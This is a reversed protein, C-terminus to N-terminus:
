LDLAKVREAEPVSILNEIEQIYARSQGVADIAPTLVPGARRVGGSATPARHIGTPRLAAAQM